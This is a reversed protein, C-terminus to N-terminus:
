LAIGTNRRRRCKVYFYRFIIIIPSKLSVYVPLDQTRKANWYCKIYFMNSQLNIKWLTFYTKWRHEFSIKVSAWNSKYKLLCILQETQNQYISIFINGPRSYLDSETKSILFRYPAATQHRTSSELAYLIAYKLIFACWVHYMIRIHLQDSEKQKIRM